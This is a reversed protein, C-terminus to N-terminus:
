GCYLRVWLSAGLSFFTLFLVRKLFLFVSFEFRFSLYPRNMVLAFQTFPIIVILMTVLFIMCWYFNAWRVFEDLVGLIELIVVGFLSLSLSFVMAFLLSSLVVMTHHKSSEGWTGGGGGGSAGAGKRISSLLKSDSDKFIQTRLYIYGFIFLAMQGVIM